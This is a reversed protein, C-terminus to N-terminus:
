KAQAVLRGLDRAVDSLMTATELTQRSSAEGEKAAQAADAIAFTVQEVATAQQKTGMEIERAAESTTDVQGAIQGFALALEAVQRQGADVAKSGAETAVITTNSATRVDEVLNRIERASGTVREALKRVEDAVAAFRKGAEGAGAAEITANIALINTQEALERIIELVGGIQQSKRGLDVMHAVVADVQRRTVEMAETARAVGGEGARVSLATDDAIRAVRRASETIQQSSTLLEKMTSSMENMSTAQEAAASAQQNAAAQLEATSSRLNGTASGVQASLSRTLWWALLVALAIAMVVIVGVLVLARQIAEDADRRANGLLDGELKAYTSIDTNLQNYAPTLKVRFLTSLAESEATAGTLHIEDYLATLRTQDVDIRALVAAEQADPNDARIHNFISQFTAQAEAIRPKFSEDATLLYGRRLAGMQGAISQLEEADLRDEWFNSQLGNIEQQLTRTTAIAVAGLLLTLALCATIGAAVMQSLTYKM